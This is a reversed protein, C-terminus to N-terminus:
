FWGCLCIIVSVCKAVQTQIMIRTEKDYTNEPLDQMGQEVNLRFYVKEEDPGYTAEVEQHKRECDKAIRFMVGYLKEALDADPTGRFLRSTWASWGTQEEPESPLSIVSDKGSGVSVVCGIEPPPWNDKRLWVKQKEQFLYSIPNNAGLEANIFEQKAWKRGIFVSKFLLPAATTARLVEWIACDIGANARVRYSRFVAPLGINQARMSTVGRHCISTLRKERMQIFYVYVRCSKRNSNPKEMDDKKILMMTEPNGTHKEVLNKAWTELKEASFLSVEDARDFDV